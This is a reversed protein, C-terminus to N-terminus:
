DLEQSGQRLAPDGKLDFCENRVYHSYFIDHEIIRRDDSDLRKLDLDFDMGSPPFVSLIATTPRGSVATLSLLSRTVEAMELLPNRQGYPYRIVMLRAGASARFSPGLKSRGIAM